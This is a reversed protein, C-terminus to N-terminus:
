AGGVAQGLPRKGIRCFKRLIKLLFLRQNKVADLLAELSRPFVLGLSIM